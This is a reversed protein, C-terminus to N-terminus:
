WRLIFTPKIIVFYNRMYIKFLSVHFDDKERKFEASTYVRLALVKQVAMEMNDM